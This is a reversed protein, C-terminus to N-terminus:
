IILEKKLLSEHLKNNEKELILNANKLDENSVSIKSEMFSRNAVELQKKLLSHAESAKLLDVLLKRVLPLSEEGFNEKYNLQFLKKKLSLYDSMILYYKIIIQM